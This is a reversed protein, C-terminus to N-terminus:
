AWCRVRSEFEFMSSLRLGSCKCDRTLIKSSWWSTSTTLEQKFMSCYESDSSIKNAFTGYCIYPNSSRMDSGDDVIFPFIDTLTSCRILAVKRMGHRTICPCVVPVVAPILYPIPRKAHPHFLMRIHVSMRELASLHRRISSNRYSQRQLM